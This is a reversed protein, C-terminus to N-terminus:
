YKWLGFRGNLKELAKTAGAVDKNAFKVWANGNSGQDIWVSEVPGCEGCADISLIM